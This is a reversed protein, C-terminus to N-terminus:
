TSGKRRAALEDAIQQIERAVDSLELPLPDGDEMAAFAAPKSWGRDFLERSRPWETAAAM